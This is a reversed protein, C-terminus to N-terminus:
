IAGLTPLLRHHSVKRELEATLYWVRDKSTASNNGMDIQATRKVVMEVKGQPYPEMHNGDRPGTATLIVARGLTLLVNKHPRNPGATPPRRLGLKIRATTEKM